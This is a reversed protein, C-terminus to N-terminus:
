ARLLHQHALQQMMERDLLWENMDTNETPGLPSIGLDRPYHGYLVYFPTNGLASHHSTNYWYEALSLWSAWKTPCAHVYCRLYTELCQNVRESQGDTQSHYASSMHLDTGLRQFLEKWFNSTFIKDRDSVIAQPLGHPKFINSMFTTAVDLATYPHSLPLFHAYKTFKDVVVM